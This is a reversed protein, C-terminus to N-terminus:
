ANELEHDHRSQIHTADLEEGCATCRTINEVAAGCERHVLVTPTAGDGRHRDGWHMLSVLVPSLDRGEDTLRYEFRAPRDQYQMRELVGEDVLRNLRTTLLNSAIGLDERLESFRHIGRFVGRLVLLSWRDGIVALAASISDTASHM